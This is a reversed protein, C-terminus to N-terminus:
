ASVKKGKHCIYRVQAQTLKFWEGRVRYERFCVHLTSESFSRREETSFIMKIDPKESRLTKERYKPNVSKGIKYLGNQKDKMLYVYSKKTKEPVEHGNYAAADDFLKKFTKSMQPNDVFGCEDWQAFSKNNMKGEFNKPLLRYECASPDDLRDIAWFQHLASASRAEHLTYRAGNCDPGWDAILHRM